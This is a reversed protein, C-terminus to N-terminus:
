WTRRSDRTLLGTIVRTVYEGAPARGSQPLAPGGRGPAHGPRGTVHKGTANVSGIM